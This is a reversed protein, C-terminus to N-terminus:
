VFKDVLFRELPTPLERVKDACLDRQLENLHNGCFKRTRVVCSEAFQLKNEHALSRLPLRLFLSQTNRYYGQQFVSFKNSFHMASIQHHEKQEQEPKTTQVHAYCTDQTGRTAQHFHRPHFHRQCCLPRLLAGHRGLLTAPAVLPLELTM